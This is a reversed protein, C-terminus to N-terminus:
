LLSHTGTPTGDPGLNNNVRNNGYSILQGSNVASLGVGNRAVTNDNLLMTARPGNASIGIGGNNVISSREVVLFAPRQGAASIAQIGDSANGSVVSDRLILHIGNTTGQTADLQLGVVNNELHVRDLVVNASSPSSLGDSPAILIGGTGATSGNNFIISDSVFMQSNSSPGLFIGFGRGPGAEFNRIVSNQIHVASAQAIYIGIAGSVQGDIVLGRLSVVDGTRASIFAGFNGPTALIGAEGSGDNTVAVSKVIILESFLGSRGGSGYDGPTLTGIEGGAAVNDHAAQFTRCPATVAGCTGSDVGTNSVWVKSAADACTAYLVIALVSVSCMMKRM